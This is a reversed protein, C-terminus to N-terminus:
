NFWKYGNVQNRKVLDELSIKGKGFPNDVEQVRLNNIATQTEYVKSFNKKLYQIDNLKEINHRKGGYSFSVDKYPLEVGYAWDIRKGNKDFFKILGKGRNAHWNRKAFEMVKFKPSLTYDGGALKGMGTFRPMGKEMELAQTLQESFSLNKLFKHSDPKNFRTKLSLAGQDKIAKFTPSENIYATITQEVLGTREQLARYWFNNLPKDEILMNKLTNEIKTEVPDLNRMVPYRKPEFQNVKKTYGIKDSPFGRNPYTTKYKPKIGFKKEVMSSVQEKTVYKESANLKPILEELYKTVKIFRKRIKPPVKSLDKFTSEEGQYGPRSGDVSPTVLQGASGGQAMNFPRELSKRQLYEEYTEQSPDFDKLLEDKLAGPELDDALSAQDGYMKQMKNIYNLIDM